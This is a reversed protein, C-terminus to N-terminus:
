GAVRKAYQSTSEFRHKRMWADLDEVDYTIRGGTRIFPPGGGACRLKELTSESYGIRAAAAKTSLFPSDTLPM